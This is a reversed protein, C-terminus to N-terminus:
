VTSPLSAAMAFAEEIIRHIEMIGGDVNRAFRNQRVIYWNSTVGGCPVFCGGQPHSRLVECTRDNLEIFFGFIGDLKRIIRGRYSGYNTRYFGKYENGRRVWGLEQWLPLAKSRVLVPKHVVEVVLARLKANLQVPKLKGQVQAQRDEVKRNSKGRRVLWFLIAIALSTFICGAILGGLPLWDM